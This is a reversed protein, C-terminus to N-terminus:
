RTGKRQALVSQYCGYCLGDAYVARGCACRPILEGTLRSHTRLKKPEDTRRRIEARESKAATLLLRKAWKYITLGARDAAAKVQVYEKATVSVGLKRPHSQEYAFSM